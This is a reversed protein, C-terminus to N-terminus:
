TCFLFSFPFLSAARALPTMGGCQSSAWDTSLCWWLVRDTDSDHNREAWTAKSGCQRGCSLLLRWREHGLSARRRVATPPTTGVRQPNWSLPWCTAAAYHLPPLRQSGRNTSGASPWRTLLPRSGPVGSYTRDRVLGGCPSFGAHPSSGPPSTTHRRAPRATPSPAV